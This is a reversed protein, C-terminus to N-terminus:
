GSLRSILTILPLFLAVVLLCIGAVVSVLTLVSLVTGAFTAQSRARAEYMDGAMHLSGPLSQHGEAWSLLRPLGRPFVPDRALADSLKRGSKLDLSLARCARAIRADGIGEATLSAAEPLPVESELLLALLHCFEALSTNRWVQGIVPITSLFGRRQDAGTLLRTFVAIVVLAIALEVLGAWSMAFLRGIQIVAVTMVPLPIGFDAFIHEFAPIITSAIFGFVAAAFFVALLPYALSNWLKRRLEVGVNMFSVFRSLIPGLKGTRQGILVLGRLHAPLRNSPDAVVM